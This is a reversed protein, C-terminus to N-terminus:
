EQDGDAPMVYYYDGGSYYSDDNFTANLEQAGDDPQLLQIYPLPFPSSFCGHTSMWLVRLCPAVSCIYANTDFPILTDYTSQVASLRFLLPIALGTSSVSRAVEM